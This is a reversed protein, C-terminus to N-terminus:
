ILSGFFEFIEWAGHGQDELFAEAECETILERASIQWCM